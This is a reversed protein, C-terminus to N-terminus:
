GVLETYLRAFQDIMKSAAFREAARTRGAEGMRAALAPDDLLLRCKAALGARDGVPVLFGTVGDDVVESLDATQWGVVPKGAAMAELAEGTGSRPRTVWVATALQVAAPRNQEGAAFHIRFDDFTLGRGFQELRATASGAGFVVLHLDKADYRLMDFAVVADKPGIGREIRGGTVILRSNPPLGLARLTADRDPEPMPGPASPGIRTLRETRVRLRRYREGDAWTTPVVRDARRLQRGTLWGRVGGGPTAAGSVVLRPVNGWETNQVVLRALRAAFPGWAHFVVPM